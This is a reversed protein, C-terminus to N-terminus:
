QERALISIMKLIRKSELMANKTLIDLIKTCILLLYYSIQPFVDEKYLLYQTQCTKTIISIGLSIKSDKYQITTRM